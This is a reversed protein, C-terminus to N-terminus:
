NSKDRKLYSLFILAISGGAVMNILAQNSYDTIAEQRCQELQDNQLTRECLEINTTMDDGNLYHNIGAGSSVGFTTLILLQAAYKRNIKEIM